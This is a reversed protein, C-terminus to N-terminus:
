WSLPEGHFCNRNKRVARAKEKNNFAPNITPIIAITIHIPAFLYGGHVFVYDLNELRQQCCKVAYM